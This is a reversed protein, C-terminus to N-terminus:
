EWGRQHFYTLVRKCASMEMGARGAEGLLCVICLTHLGCWCKSSEERQVARCVRERRRHEKITIATIQIFCAWHIWRKCRGKSLAATRKVPWTYPNLLFCAKKWGECFTSELRWELCHLFPLVELFFNIQTSVLLYLIQTKIKRERGWCRMFILHQQSVQGCCLRNCYFKFPFSVWQHKAGQLAVSVSSINSRIAKGHLGDM